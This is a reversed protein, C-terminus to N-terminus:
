INMNLLWFIGQNVGDSFVGNVHSQEKVVNLSWIQTIFMDSNDEEEFSYVDMM